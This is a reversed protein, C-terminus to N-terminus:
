PLTCDANIGERLAGLSTEVSVCRKPRDTVAPNTKNVMGVQVMVPTKTPATVTGYSDFTIITVPSGNSAASLKLTKTKIEGEGLTQWVIDPSTLPLNAVSLGIRPPDSVNDLYVSRSLKTQKATSQAKNLTSTIQSRVASVRQNNAFSLWGPVAIASLVSVLIIVVLLEILTFGRPLRQRSSRRLKSSQQYM